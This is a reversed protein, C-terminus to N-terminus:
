PRQLGAPLRANQALISAASARFTASSPYYLVRLYRFYVWGPHGRALRPRHRDAPQKSPRPPPATPHSFIYIQYLWKAPGKAIPLPINQLPPPCGRARNRNTDVFDWMKRNYYKRPVQPLGSNKLKIKLKSPSPTEPFTPFLGTKARLGLRTFPDNEPRFYMIKSWKSLFPSLDVEYHLDAALM